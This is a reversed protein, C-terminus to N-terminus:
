VERNTPLTLHTYSVAELEAKFAPAGPMAPVDGSFPLVMQGRAPVVVEWSRALWSASSTLTATIREDVKGLNRVAFGGESTVLNVRTGPNLEITAPAVIELRPLHLTLSKSIKSPGKVLVGSLIEASVLYEGEMRDM